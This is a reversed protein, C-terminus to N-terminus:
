RSRGDGRPEEAEPQRSGARLLLEGKLRHAEAEHVRIQLQDADTIAEKVATLGETAREATLFAEALANNNWGSALIEGTARIADIGELMTKHKIASLEDPTM